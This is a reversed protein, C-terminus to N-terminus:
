ARERNGPRAHKRSEPAEKEIGRVNSIEIEFRRPRKPEREIKPGRMSGQNLPKM